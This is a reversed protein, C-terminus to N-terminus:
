ATLGYFIAWSRGVSGLVEPCVGSKVFNDFISDRPQSLVGGWSVVRFLLCFNLLGVNELLIVM